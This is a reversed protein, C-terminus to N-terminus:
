IYKLMEDLSGAARQMVEPDLEIAYEENELASMVDGLTTKKMNFCVLPSVASYFTKSPNERKLREILGIETAILFKDIDSDRALRLMGSTSEVYDSLDIVEPPCEPHSVLVFDPHEAKMRAVEDSKVKNHVYCHGNFLIVKKKTFRSVYHGLNRDPVFVIEDADINEVVKKANASTCCVDCEAKVDASSNVYCVVKAAPHEKRLELVDERTVMDAMPCGANKVPLLVKKDPSLIKATEAMFRVGCFVILDAKTERAKRSLELSDGLIDAIEQVESRQYNHVLLVANKEKKLTNIRDIIENM